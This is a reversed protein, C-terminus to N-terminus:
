KKQLRFLKVSGVVASQSFAHRTLEPRSGDDPETQYSPIVVSIEYGAPVTKLVDLCDVIWEPQVFLNNFAQRDMTGRLAQVPKAIPDQLIPRILYRDGLYFIAIDQTWPPLSIMVRNPDPANKSESELRSVVADWTNERPSFIEAYVPFLWSVPVSRSLPQAWFSFTLFNFAVVFIGVFLYLKKSAITANLVMFTIVLEFVLLHPEYRLLSYKNSTEYGFLAAGAVIQILINLFVFAYLQERFLNRLANRNRFFLVALLASWLLLPFCDVVDMDVIAAWLGTGFMKFWLIFNTEILSLPLETEVLSPGLFQSWVFWSAFGVGCACFYSALVERRLLLCFAILSISSCMAAFPHTQFLLVFILSAAVFHNRSSKFKRSLHWVLVAYLLILLPYYRANRQFLVVQPSTLILVTTLVPYKLRSRLTGYIPFFSLAGCCAFLVRLGFTNNGFILLSLSGLYYQTWPIKNCVLDRNLQSGGEFISINRGDYAFPYGHHLIQRAEIGTDAEDGWLLPRDIRYFYVLAIILLAFVPRVWQMHNGSYAHLSLPQDFTSPQSNITM